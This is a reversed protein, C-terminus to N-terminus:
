QRARAEAPAVGPGRGSLRAGEERSIKGEAVLQAAQAPSMEAHALTGLRLNRISPSLLTTLLVVALGILQAVVVATPAGWADVAFTLPLVGLPMTGFSMMLVAMVRGRYEDPVQAQIVANNTVQFIMAGVNGLALLVLAPLFAPIIAFAIMCLLMAVAGGIQLWGKHPYDSIGAAILAGVLGGIGSVSMLYGLAVPGRKFVDEAFVPLIQNVPFAFLPMVLAIIILMRFLPTRWVFTFGAGLESMMRTGADRSVAVMGHKPLPLLSIVSIVFLAVTVLYVNGVGMPAILLGAVAPGIIRTVNQGSMQLSIANMMLHQPVLQPVIAQRAPMVVSFFLGMSMAAAALHWFEIRGTLILAAMVANNLGVFTQSWILLTRKNVRDAIVGGFPGAFLMPVALSLALIGLASAAGTLEYALYGRLTFNMQMALFFAANGGSFWAYDRVRLSEFTRSIVGGREAHAIGDTSM